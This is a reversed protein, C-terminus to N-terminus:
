IVRLNGEKIETSWPLLFRVEWEASEDRLERPDDRSKEASLPLSDSSFGLCRLRLFCFLLRDLFFLLSDFFSSTSDEVGLDTQRYNNKM